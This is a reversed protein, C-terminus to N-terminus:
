STTTLHVLELDRNTARMIDTMEHYPQDQQNILGMNFAETAGPKATVAQDYHVFWAYGVFAPSLAQARVFDRFMEGRGAISDATISRNHSTLGRDPYCFSFEINLIPKDHIEYQRIVSADNSYWDFSIADLYEIGGVNWERSTRWTPVLSSGLFLHHPDHRQIANRVERFYTKAALTIFGSVDHAPVRNIDIALDALERFSRASTGLTANVRALDDGYADALHRVFARKAPLDAGRRVVAAVVDRNWGRENEFFYGVLWRDDRFGRLGFADFAHDLKAAFDPDFPDIGWLVRIVDAPTPAREIYPMVVSPDRHWKGQANFGWDIMRRRSIERWKEQFDAGYKRMLNAIVFNVTHLGNEVVAYAPAFEAPDPLEEFVERPSGDANKYLTGYGWEQYSFADVAKLFFLHGDPTVFWWRGDVKELRFYGTAARRGLSRRGGYRDYTAGDFRVGALRRAEEAYERRLQEDSIVKGPWDQHLYQGYRDVVPSAAAAPLPRTLGLAGAALASAGLLMHRRSLM